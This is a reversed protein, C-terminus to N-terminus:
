RGKYILTTVEGPHLDLLSAVTAQERETQDATPVKFISTTYVGSGSVGAALLTMADALSSAKLNAGAAQAAGFTSAANQAQRKSTADFRTKWAEMLPSSASDPFGMSKLSEQASADSQRYFEYGTEQGASM